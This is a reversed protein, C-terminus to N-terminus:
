IEERKNSDTRSKEFEKWKLRRMRRHLLQHYAENPCIVLNFPTHNDTIDENMHHVRVGPPLPRGLAKEALVLHEHKLVGNHRIRFYGNIDFSGTGRERKSIMEANGYRKFYYYHRDCFGKSRALKGCNKISCHKLIM